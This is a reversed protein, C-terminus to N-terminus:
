FLFTTYNGIASLQLMVLMMPIIIDTAGVKKIVKVTIYLLVLFTIICIISFIIYAIYAFEKDSTLERPSIKMVTMQESLQLTASRGGDDGMLLNM